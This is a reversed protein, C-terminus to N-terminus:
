DQFAPPCAVQRGPAFLRLAPVQTRCGDLAHACRPAFACGAQGAASAISGPIEVLPGDSYHYSDELRPAASLLGRTYPHLPQAFLDAPDGEEVKRGAYMVVVRDAWQGVVGLDHTILLMAMSLERRLRDLLELVQAQITVDLATTPEDAILLRPGCAVAIAIMVRQRMGGSLQHPYDAFRRAPDPIRVLDLLELARARAAARSLPQHQALAEVIQAGITMVPNLSTMPEQFIMGIEGGRLARRARPSLTAVDRGAFRVTGGAIRAAGPLLDMVSLATLSKGSGSEGVLALTEGEHLTFDLGRVAEKDGFAVRLGTVDLLPAVTHTVAALPSTSM